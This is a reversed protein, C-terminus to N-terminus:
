SGAEERAAFHYDRNPEMEVATALRNTMNYFGSVAAIDWIDRDSFGVARLAQRDDEGVSDPAETLLVSFDLM